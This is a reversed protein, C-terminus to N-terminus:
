NFDEPSLKEVFDHFLAMSQQKGDEEIASFDPLAATEIVADEAYIPAHVRVALAIADSPRSDLALLEGAGTEIEVKAFFTSGEVHDIIVSAIRGGLQKVATVLLDHTLPREGAGRSVGESIAAAEFTGTRIPLRAQPEGESVDHPRLVVLSAVPGAGVVVTQIDMLRRSM